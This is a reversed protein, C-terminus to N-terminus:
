TNKLHLGIGRMTRMKTKPVFLTVCLDLEHFQISSEVLASNERKPTCLGFDLYTSVANTSVANHPITTHRPKLLCDNMLLVLCQGENM